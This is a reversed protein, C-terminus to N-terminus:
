TEPNDGGEGSGGESGPPQSKQDQVQHGQHAAEERTYDKRQGLRESSSEKGSVKISSDTTNRAPSGTSAVQENAKPKNGMKCFDKSTQHVGEPYTIEFGEAVQFEGNHGQDSGM